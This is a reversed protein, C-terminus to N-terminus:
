CYFLWLFIRLSVGPYISQYFYDNSIHMVLIGGRGERCPSILATIDVNTQTQSLGHSCPDVLPGSLSGKAKEWCGYIILLEM